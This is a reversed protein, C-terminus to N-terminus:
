LATMFTNSVAKGSPGEKSSARLAALSATEKSDSLRGSSQGAEVTGDEKTLEVDEDRVKRWFGADQFSM